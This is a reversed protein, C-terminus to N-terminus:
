SAKRANKSGPKHVNGEHQTHAPAKGTFGAQRDKLRKAIRASRKAM